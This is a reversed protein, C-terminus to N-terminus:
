RNVLSVVAGFVEMYLAAVFDQLPEQPDGDGTRCGPLPSVIPILGWCVDAPDRCLRSWDGALNWFGAM